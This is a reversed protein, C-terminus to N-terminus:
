KLHEPLRDYSLKVGRWTMGVCRGIENFNDGAQRLQAIRRLKSAPAMRHSVTPHQARLGEVWAEYEELPAVRYITPAVRQPRAAFSRM